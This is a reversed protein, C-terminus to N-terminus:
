DMRYKHNTSTSRISVLSTTVLMTEFAQHLATALPRAGAQPSVAVCVLLAIAQGLVWPIAFDLLKAWSVENDSVDALCAYAIAIGASIIGQYTRIYYSRILAIIFIYLFLFVALVGGYGIRATSTSTSLWLGLAGWGLGTTAGIIMQITGEIQTGITRGPHGLIVSVTAIYYRGGLANRVSPVLCLVYAIYFAVFTKLLKIGARTTTVRRFVGLLERKQTPLFGSVSLPNKKRFALPLTAQAQQSLENPDHHSPVDFTADFFSDRMESIGYTNDDGTTVNKRPPDQRHSSHQFPTTSDSHTM